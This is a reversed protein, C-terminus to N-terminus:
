RKNSIKSNDLILRASREIQVSTEAYLHQYTSLTKYLPIFPKYLTNFREKLSDLESQSVIAPAFIKTHIERLLPLAANEPNLRFGM